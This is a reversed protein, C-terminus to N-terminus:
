LPLDFAFLGPGTFILSLLIVAALSYMIYQDAVVPMSKRNKWYDFYFDFKLSAIAVMSAVQAYLGVLILSGSIVYFISAWKYSKNYRKSGLYIIYFGAVLRLLLPSLLEFTLLSPFTTLTHM